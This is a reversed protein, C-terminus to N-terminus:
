NTDVKALCGKVKYREACRALHKHPLLERLLLQLSVGRVHLGRQDAQLRAGAGVEEAPRQVLLPVIDLQNWGWNTFGKTFDFLFSKM